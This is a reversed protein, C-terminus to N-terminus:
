KEIRNIGNEKADRWAKTKEANTKDVETSM